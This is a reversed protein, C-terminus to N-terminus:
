TAAGNGGLRRRRSREEQSRVTQAQCDVIDAVAAQRGRGGPVTDVIIPWRAATQTEVGQFRERGGYDHGTRPHHHLATAAATAAATRQVSATAPLQRQSLSPPTAAATGAAGFNYRRGAVTARRRNVAGTGRAVTRRELATRGYGAGRYCRESDSGGGGSVYWQL